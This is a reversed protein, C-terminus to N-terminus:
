KAGAEDTSVAQAVSPYDIDAVFGIVEGISVSGPSASEHVQASLLGSLGLATDIRVSAIGEPMKKERRAGKIIQGPRSPLDHVTVGLTSLLAGCIDAVEDQGLSGLVTPLDNSHVKVITREDTITVHDGSRIVTTQSSM